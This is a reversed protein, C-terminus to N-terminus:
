EGGTEDGCDEYPWVECTRVEPGIWNGLIDMRPWLQDEDIPIFQIIDWNGPNNHLTKSTEFRLTHRGTTQVDIIGLLHSCVVSNFKKANYQKWGVLEIQEHSSASPDPMYEAMDFVYPLVQDDYGEQKFTSKITADLERRYCLWVKYKGEVLVPTKFEVWSTVSPHLVFRLHDGYVYQFKEDLVNSYGGCYYNIQGPAKGGWTIESLEGANFFVNAGKKRFNLLAMIEPQETVDWYIRYASRNKIQINGNIKQIVGNSCNLDSYESTRDLPIGPETIQGQILENLLIVDMNRKFTIVQKPIVTQMSSLYMLDTIYLRTNIIHYGIYNHILTDSNEIAPTFERLQALLDDVNAIGAEEFVQNDQIFLTYWLDEKEVDLSDTWGSMEFFSKFLSYDSDPLARIADSISNEPPTLVKDIIHLIGNAGRVNEEIIRAQRNITTGGNEYKTMLYKKQFNPTALRGDTFDTTRLTDRVLHYTVIAVAEEKSLANVDNKEMNQLHETLAENTPAFLTYAGYAHITGSMDAKDVVSLFATLQYEELLEDLMKDDYVKYIEGEMAKECSTMLALFLLCVVATKKMVLAIIRGHSKQLMLNAM